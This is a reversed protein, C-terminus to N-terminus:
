EARIHRAYIGGAEALPRALELVEETTAYM